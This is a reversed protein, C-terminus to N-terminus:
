LYQFLAVKKIELQRFENGLNTMLERVIIVLELLMKMKIVMYKQISPAGFNVCCSLLVNNLLILIDPLFTFFFVIKKKTSSISRNTVSFTAVNLFM